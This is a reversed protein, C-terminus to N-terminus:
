STREWLNTTEFADYFVRLGSKRLEAAVAEVYARDEGAFSLAVDFIEAPAKPQTIKRTPQPSTTAQQNASRIPIGLSNAGSSVARLRARRESVAQAIKPRIDSNFREVDQNVWATWEKTRQFEEDFTRKTAGVDTDPRTVHFALDSGEVEARPLHFSHTSPQFRFLQSDGTFPVFYSVRIGAVYFPRSRDMLDRKWSGSVDVQAEEASASVAGETYRIPEITFRDALEARIQAEDGDRLEPAPMEAVAQRIKEEINDFVARLQGENFLPPPVSRPM